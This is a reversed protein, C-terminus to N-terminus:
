SGSAPVKVVGELIGIIRSYMEAEGVGEDLGDLTERALEVATLGLEDRVSVDAKRALLMECGRVNGAEAALHLATRGHIGCRLNVSEVDGWKQLLEHIIDQNMIMDYEDRNLFRHAPTNCEPTRHMIGRHAWAARHLASLQRAPEVIFSGFSGQKNDQTPCAELLYRLRPVTHQASAAIIHGLVTTPYELSLLGSSTCLANPHAGCHIFTSALNFANHQVAVLFPTEPSHENSGSHSGEIDLGVDVLYSVLEAVHDTNHGATALIHLGTWNQEDSNFPNKAMAKPDAGNAVLLQVLPKRNWRIAELVPTRRDEGVPQNIDGPNYAGPRCPDPAPEFTEILHKVENSLLHEVVKEHGESVAYFLLHMDFGGIGTAFVIEQSKTLCLNLTQHLREEYKAGNRLIMSFTDAAHTAAAIVPEMTYVIKADDLAKLLLELCEVHHYYAAYTPPSLSGPHGKAWDLCLRKDPSKELLLKVICPRDNHIAWTLPTGPLQFDVDITGNFESYSIRERTFERMKAGKELLAEGITQIDEDNFSVLWHMCTEGNAAAFAPDAGLELLRTVTTLQGARCACLLPTEGRDNRQDITLSPFAGLLSEIAQFRGASAALHLIRDGRKNVRYQEIRDMNRLNRVLIEPNDFTRIWQHYSFGGLMQDQHYFNAGVGAMIDRIINQSWDYKAPALEKLDILAPRSGRLAMVSLNDIVAATPVYNPDLSKHIRYAFARSSVHDYAAVSSLDLLRRAAEYNVNTGYGNIYYSALVFCDPPNIRNDSILTEVKQHFSNLVFSQVAPELDRMQQWSLIHHYEDVQDSDSLAAIAGRLDRKVPDVSLCKDLASPVRGYFADRQAWDILPGSFMNATQPLRLCPGVCKMLAQWSTPSTHANGPQNTDKGLRLNSIAERLWDVTLEAQCDLNKGSIYPILWKELATNRAPGDEEKITELEQLHSDGQLSSEVWFRFPDHGDTALRWLLLGYSYIDTAQLLHKPVPSKAEPAKWPKTGGVYVENSAAEGVMSFGFDSLKAIYERGPDSFILVNESKVDGHIIGCRHLMELGQGIDLALRGRILPTLDHKRQLDALNGHDAYEVVLVPLRHSPDFYNSGWALGLLDIINPHQRLPEHMLSYLEMLAAKMAHRTQPTPTGTETFAVRAVKYVVHKPRAMHQKPVSVSWGDMNSTQSITLADPIARKFTTFSAGHGVFISQDVSLPELYLTPIRSSVRFHAPQHISVFDYVHPVFIADSRTDESSQSDATEETTESTNESSSRRESSWARGSLSSSSAM